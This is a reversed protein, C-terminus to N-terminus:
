PNSICMSGVSFDGFLNHPKLITLALAELNLLKEDADMTASGEPPWTEDGPLTIQGDISWLWPAPAPFPMGGQQLVALAKKRPDDIVPGEGAPVSQTEEVESDMLVEPFSFSPPLLRQRKTASVTKTEIEAM